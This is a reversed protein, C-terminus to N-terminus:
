ESSVIASFVLFVSASLGGCAVFFAPQSTWAFLGAGLLGGAAVFLVSLVYRNATPEPLWSMLLVLLSLGFATILFSFVYFFVLQEFPNPGWAGLDFLADTGSLWVLVLCLNGLAAPLSSILVRKLIKEEYGMM